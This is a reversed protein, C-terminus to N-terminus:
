SQLESDPFPSAAILFSQQHIAAEPRPCGLALVRSPLIGQQSSKYCDLAIGVGNLQM